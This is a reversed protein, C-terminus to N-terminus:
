IDEKKIEIKKLFVEELDIQCCPCRKHKKLWEKICNDCYSHGCNLQRIVCEIDQYYDLCIPCKELQKENKEAICSIQNIEDETFGIEVKGLIDAIMNNFEYENTDNNDDYQLQMWLIPRVNSDSDLINMFRDIASTLFPSNILSRNDNEFTYYYRPTVLWDENEFVSERNPSFSPSFVLGEDQREPNQTHTNTNTHTDIPTQSLSSISILTSLSCQIVHLNYNLRNVNSNCYPCVITQDSNSSM